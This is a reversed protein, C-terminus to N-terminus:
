RRRSRRALQEMEEMAEVMASGSDHDLMGDAEKSSDGLGEEEQIKEHVDDVNSSQKEEVL